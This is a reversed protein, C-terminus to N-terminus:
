SEFAERLSADYQEKDRVKQEIFEFANFRWYPMTIRWFAPDDHTQSFRTQIYDYFIKFLATPSSLALSCWFTGKEWGQQLIPSILIPPKIQAEEEAFVHMFEKHLNEYDDKTILDISEDTLWHPPHIMEVPHSCAWELDILCKIDWRDNVLINTQNLDTLSLFFPGRRLDRGFFCSWVSRMVMLASTQYFGDEVSNIGNPQNCLRSEHAALIDNIYSDVTSHTVDRPIDVPIHENELQQVELTLPRNSLSLCGKDDLVFSGIRPLPTRALDLIIRSLGHFLNTRLKPDHRGTEWTESLM